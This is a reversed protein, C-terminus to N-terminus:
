KVSEAFIDVKKDDYRETISRGLIQKYKQAMLKTRLIRQRKYNMTLDKHNKHFNPM